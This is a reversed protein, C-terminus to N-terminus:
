ECLPLITLDFPAETVNEGLRMMEAPLIVQAVNGMYERLRPLLIQRLANDGVVHLEDDNHSLECHQWANAIFYFADDACNFKFVNAFAVRGSKLVVIEVTEKDVFAFMKNRGGYADKRKFFTLLPTLCHMIPPNYFTRRLFSEINRDIGYVISLGAEVIHDAAVNRRDDPYICNYYRQCEDSDGATMEDPVLLFRDSDTVVSIKGFPQLLFPNDYVAAELCAAYGRSTDAFPLEGFLLSNDDNDCHITFKLRDAYLRLALSWVEPHSVEYITNDDTKGM